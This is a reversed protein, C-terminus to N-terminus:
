KFKIMYSQDGIVLVHPFKDNYSSAAGKSEKLKEVERWSLLFEGISRYVKDYDKVKGVIVPGVEFNFFKRGYEKVKEMDYKRLDSVIQEIEKDKDQQAFSIAGKSFGIGGLVVAASLAMAGVKKYVGKM